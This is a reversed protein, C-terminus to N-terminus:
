SDQKFILPEIEKVSEPRTRRSIKLLEGVRRRPIRSRLFIQASDSRLLWNCLLWKASEGTWAETAPPKCLRGAAGAGEGRQEGPISAISAVQWRGKFELLIAVADTRSLIRASGVPGPRVWGRHRSASGLECAWGVARSM